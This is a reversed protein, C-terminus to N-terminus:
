AVRLHRQKALRSKSYHLRAEAIQLTALAQHFRARAAAREPSNRKDIHLVLADTAIDVARSADNVSQREAVLLPLLGKVM